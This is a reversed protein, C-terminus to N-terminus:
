SSVVHSADAQSRLGGLMSVRLVDHVLVMKYPVQDFCTAKARFMEACLVLDCIHKGLWETGHFEVPKPSSELHEIHHRFTVNDVTSCVFGIGSPDVEVLSLQVSSAAMSAAQHLRAVHLVVLQRADHDHDHRDHIGRASV